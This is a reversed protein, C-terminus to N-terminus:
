NGQYVGNIWSGSQETGNPFTMSGLGNPNGDKYEGVYKRGDAWTCTGRTSEGDKYEAVYKFGDPWTHTGLGNARGDVFGGVYKQGDPWSLTVQGNPSGDKFQGVFVEGAPTTYTGLGNAKGDKIQGKYNDYNNVSVKEIVQTSAATKDESLNAYRTLFQTNKTGNQDISEAYILGIGKAYYSKIPTLMVCTVEICNSYTGSPTTVTQNVATIENPYGDADNWKTGVNGISLNSLEGQIKNRQVNSRNEKMGTISSQYIELYKGEENLKSFTLKDYVISGNIQNTYDKEFTKVTPFYEALNINANSNIASSTNKSNSSTYTYIAGIIFLALIIYSLLSKNNKKSTENKNENIKQESLGLSIRKTLEDQTPGCAQAACRKDTVKVKNQEDKVTDEGLLNKTESDVSASETSSIQQSCAMEEGQVDSLQLEEKDKMLFCDM